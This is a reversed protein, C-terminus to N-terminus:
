SFHAAYKRREKRSALRASIIWRYPGDNEDFRWTYIIAICQGQAQGIAKIRREGYDFRKDDAEITHDLFIRASKPFSLGRERINKENKAPDFDIKM